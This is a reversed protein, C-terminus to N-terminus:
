GLNYNRANFLQNLLLKTRLASCHLEIINNSALDSQFYMQNNTKEM